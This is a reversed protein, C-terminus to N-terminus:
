SAGGEVKKLQEEIEHRMSTLSQEFHNKMQWYTVQIESVIHTLLAAMLQILPRADESTRSTPTCTSM